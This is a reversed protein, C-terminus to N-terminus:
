KLLGKLDSIEKVIKSNIIESRSMSKKKNVLEKMKKRITRNDELRKLEKDESAIFSGIGNLFSGSEFYVVESRNHESIDSMYGDYGYMITSNKSNLDKIFKNLLKNDDLDIDFEGIKVHYSYTSEMEYYYDFDFETATAYVFIKYKM